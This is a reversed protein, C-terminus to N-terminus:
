NKSNGITQVVVSAIGGIIVAEYIKGIIFQLFTVVDLYENPPFEFFYRLSNGSISLFRSLVGKSYDIDIFVNYIIEYYWSFVSSLLLLSYTTILILNFIHIVNKFTKKSTWLFVITFVIVFLVFLMNSAIGFNNGRYLEQEFIHMYITTIFLAIYWSIGKKLYLGHSFIFTVLFCSIAIGVVLMNFMRSVRFFEMICYILSFIIFLIAFINVLVKNKM